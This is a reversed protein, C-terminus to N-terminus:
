ARGEPGREGAAKVGGGGGGAIPMLLRKLRDREKTDVDIALAYVAAKPVNLGEIKVADKETTIIMQSGQQRGMVADLDTQTYGHHDPFRINDTVEAGLGELTSFFSEPNAIACFALVKRGKLAEVGKASGGTVDILGTPRYGYEMVPLNFRKILEMDPKSFGRGMVLSARGIGEVPERLIGRPLLYRGFGNISDTLLINLDRELRIHQFGDDLIIVDPSFREIAYLAAGVRDAGVVVPVGQLRKAILYPEDGAMEPGLLIDRGDSVTDISKGGRKYGRSLVAVRKGSEKLLSAIFIAVPTKGTGGVTINGVSIVPCPVRKTRLVGARYLLLRLRVAIGYIVSLSYLLAHPAIGIRDRRMWREVDQRSFM